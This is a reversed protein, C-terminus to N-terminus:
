LELGKGMEAMRMRLLKIADMRVASSSTKRYRKGRWHYQIWWTSGRQFVMGLGRRKM